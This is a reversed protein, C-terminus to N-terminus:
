RSSDPLNGAKQGTRQWALQTRYFWLGITFLLGAVLFGTSVRLYRSGQLRIQKSLFGQALMGLGVATFLLPWLYYWSAWNGTAAQYFLIGGLAINLTGSIVLGERRWVFASVLFFVGLGFIVLPWTAPFFYNFLFILGLAILALGGVTTPRNQLM